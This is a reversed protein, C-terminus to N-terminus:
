KSSANKTSELKRMLKRGHEPLLNKDRLRRLSALLESGKTEIEKQVLDVTIPTSSTYITYALERDKRHIDGKLEMSITENLEGTISLKRSLLFSEIEGLHVLVEDLSRIKEDFNANTDEIAKSISTSLDKSLIEVHDHPVVLDDKSEATSIEFVDFDFSHKSLTIRVSINKSIHYMKRAPGKPGEVMEQVLWGKEMLCQLHRQLSQQTKNLEKSLQFLYKPEQAVSRLISRRTENSILKFFEKENM